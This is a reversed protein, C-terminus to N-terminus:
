ISHSVVLWHGDHLVVNVLYNENYDKKEGDVHINVTVTYAETVAYFADADIYNADIAGLQAERYEDLAEGELKESATATTTVTYDGYLEQCDQLIFRYYAAYYSDFSDITVDIGKDEAQQQATAFFEEESGTNAVANDEWQGRANYFTLSFRTAYDRMYYAEIFREAVGEYGYPDTVPQEGCACLGVATLLALMLSFLRLLLHRQSM